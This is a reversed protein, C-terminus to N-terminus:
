GVRILGRLADEKVQLNRHKRVERRKQKLENMGMHTADMHQGVLGTHHPTGSVRLTADM